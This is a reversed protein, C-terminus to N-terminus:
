AAVKGVLMGDEIGGICLEAIAGAPLEAGQLRVPAMQDTHGAGTREILARRRQGLQAALFTELAAEGRARLRAAREKRVEKAVQPM